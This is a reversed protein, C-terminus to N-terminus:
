FNFNQIRVVMRTLQITVNGNKELATLASQTHAIQHAIPSIEHASGNVMQRHLVAIREQLFEIAADRKKLKDVNALQEGISTSTFHDIRNVGAHNTHLRVVQCRSVITPIVKDESTATLIYHVNKGPEELQKLFANLADITAKDIQEIFFSIPHTHTLRTIQALERVDAIKQLPFPILKEANEETLERAKKQALEANTSIILRAHM